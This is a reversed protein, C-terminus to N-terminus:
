GVLQRNEEIMGKCKHFRSAPAAASHPEDRNGPFDALQDGDLGLQALDHRCSLFCGSHARLGLGFLSVPFTVWAPDPSLQQGVLGGLSMVIPPSAGGLAQAATLVAINRRANPERENGLAVKLCRSATQCLM